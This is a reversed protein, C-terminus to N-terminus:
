PNGSRQNRTRAAAEFTVGRWSVSLKKARFLACFLWVVAAFLLCVFVWIPMAIGNILHAANTWM